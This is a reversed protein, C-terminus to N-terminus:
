IADPQRSPHADAFAPLQELADAVRAINPYATLDVGFRRASFVQPLLCVDALTPQEGAAYRSPSEALVQELADFGTRIWHRIWEAKGEEDKGYETQLYKGVRTNQLPHIDAAIALALARVRARAAAGAPLLRPTDPYAEDLYECIALSQAIKVGGDDLLPVLGQPNIALYDPSRQEGKLLNVPQYRYDLGKLNLAIRVRYAASSRFYGYLVRETM